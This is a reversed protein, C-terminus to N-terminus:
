KMQDLVNTQYTNQADKLLKEVDAGQDAVIQSVVGGLAGYYEQGAVLPEPILEVKGSTVATVFPAYNKIPLNAFETILKQMADNYSGVYLPLSPAGVVVTPDKKGAEFNAQIEGPDFTKWLQYYVAAEKEDDTA